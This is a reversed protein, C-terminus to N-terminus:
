PHARGDQRDVDGPQAEPGAPPRDQVAEFRGDGGGPDGRDDARVAGALANQQAQEVPQEDGVFAPHRKASALAPAGVAVDAAGEDELLRGQDAGRDGAVDGEPQGRGAQRAGLPLAPHRRRQPPDAEGLTGFVGCGLQRAALLLPEREGLGPHGFGVQQQEVFRGCCEIM